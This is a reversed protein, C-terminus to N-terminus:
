YSNRLDTKELVTACFNTTKLWRNRINSILTSRTYKCVNEQVTM